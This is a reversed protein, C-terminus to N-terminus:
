SWYSVENWKVEVESWKVEFYFWKVYIVYSWGVDHKPCIYQGDDPTEDFHM